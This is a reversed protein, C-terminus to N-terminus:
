ELNMASLVVCPENDNSYPDQDESLQYVDTGNSHYQSIEAYNEGVYRIDDLIVTRWYDGSNYAFRVVSEQDMQQLQKILERVLM